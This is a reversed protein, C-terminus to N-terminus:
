VDKVLPLKSWALLGRLRMKELSSRQKREKLGLTPQLRLKQLLSSLFNQGAM